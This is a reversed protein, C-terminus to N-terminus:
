CRAGAVKRRWRARGSLLLALALAAGSPEPVASAIRFGLKDGEFSPGIAMGHQRLLVNAANHWNGGHVWRSPYAGLFDRTGSTELWELVNGGQGATGFPSLVGVDTVANPEGNFAGDYFVATFEPDGPFDIGDPTENSGTPYDWYRQAQPDYYAAKHWEDSSPLFYRARRNRFPNDPDYGPDAATWVEFKGQSDFKYALPHGQSANLWNAFRAAEWWSVGTAPQEPRRADITIGLDGQRNAAEVAATSVEHKGIWFTYNVAGALPPAPLPNGPANILVLELSFADTGVGFVATRTAATAPSQGGGLISAAALCWATMARRLLTCRM